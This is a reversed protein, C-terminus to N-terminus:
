LGLDVRQVFLEVELIPLVFRNPSAPFSLNFEFLVVDIEELVSLFLRQLLHLPDFVPFMFDFRLPLLVRLYDTQGSFEFPYIFLLTYELQDLKLIRIFNSPSVFTIM